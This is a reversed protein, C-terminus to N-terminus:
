SKADKYLPIYVRFLRELKRTFEAAGYHIVESNKWIPQGLNTLRLMGLNSPWDPSGGFILRNIVDGESFDTLADKIQDEIAEPPNSLGFVLDLLRLCVIMTGMLGHADCDKLYDHQQNGDPGDILVYLDCLHALGNTEGRYLAKILNMAVVLITKNKSLISIEHGVASNLQRGELLGEVNRPSQLGPTQLKHHLDVSWKQTQMDMLHMEGNFVDWYRFPSITDLRFNNARLQSLIKYFNRRAVFIDLDASARIFYSGYIENQQFPGKVYAYPIDARSFLESVRGAGSLLRTNIILARKEHHTLAARVMNYNAGTLDPLIGHAFHHLTRSNLALETAKQLDDDSISTEFNANPLADGPLGAKLYHLLLSVSSGPLKCESAIIVGLRYTM